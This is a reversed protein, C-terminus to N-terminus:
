AGEVIFIDVRGAGERVRILERYRDSNYWERIREASEFEVVTIGFPQWDGELREVPHHGTVYKGGYETITAGVHRRYEAFRETDTIEHITAILYAAM